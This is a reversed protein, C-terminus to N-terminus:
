QKAQQAQQQTQLDTMKKILTKLNSTGTNNTLVPEM